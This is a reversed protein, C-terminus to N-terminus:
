RVTDLVQDAVFLLQDPAVFDLQDDVIVYNFNTGTSLKVHFAGYESGFFDNKKVEDIGQLPMEWEHVGADNTYGMRDMTIYFIGLCFEEFTSGGHDHAITAALVIDDPDMELSTASPVERTPAPPGGGLASVEVPTKTSAILPRAYEIPVAFNLNQAREGVLQSTTIGIVEGRMNFLPGGSSGPSIPVSIQILRYGETRRFASVVGVSVTHELGQPNGIAVADQGVEVSESNSLPVVPLRTFPAVKLVAIDRRQDFDVVQVRDYVEGDFMKVELSSAGEIVHFNTVILGDRDVIFGSGISQVDGQPDVNGIFVVAPSAAKVLDPVSMTQGLAYGPLGLLLLVILVRFASGRRSGPAPRSASM